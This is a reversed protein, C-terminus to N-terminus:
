RGAGKIEEVPSLLADAERIKAAPLYKEGHEFMSPYYATASIITAPTLTAM